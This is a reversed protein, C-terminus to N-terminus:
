RSNMKRASKRRQRNELKPPDILQGGMDPSSRRRRTMEVTIRQLEIGIGDAGEEGGVFSKDTRYDWPANDWNARLGNCVAPELPRWMSDRWAVFLDKDSSPPIEDWKKGVFPKNDPAKTFM